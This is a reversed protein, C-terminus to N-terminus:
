CTPELSRPVAAIDSAHARRRGVGWHGRVPWSPGIGAVPCSTPRRASIDVDNVCHM